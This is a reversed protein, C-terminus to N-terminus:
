RLAAIHRILLSFLMAYQYHFLSITVYCPAYRPAYLPAADDAAYFFIMAYARRIYAALIYHRTHSMLMHTHLLAAFHFCLCPMALTYHCRRCRPLPTAADAHFAHRADYCCRM